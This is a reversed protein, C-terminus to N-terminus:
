DDGDSEGSVQRVRGDLIKEVSAQVKRTEKGTLQRPQNDPLTKKEDLRDAMEISEYTLKHVRELFSTSNRSMGTIMYYFKLQEEPTLTDVRNLIEKEIKRLAKRLKPLRKSEFSAQKYLAELADRVGSSIIANLDSM